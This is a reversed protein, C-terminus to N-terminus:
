SHVANMGADRGSIETIADKTTFKAHFIRLAITMDDVSGEPILRRERGRPEIRALNLGRGDDQLDIRLFGGEVLTSV